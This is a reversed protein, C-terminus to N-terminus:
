TLITLAICNAASFIRAVSSTGTLAPSPPSYHRSLNMGVTKPFRILAFLIGTEDTTLAVIHIVHLQRSHEISIDHTAGIPVREDLIYIDTLRHLNRPDHCHNSTFVQIGCPERPHWRERSIRFSHQRQITHMVLHLFYGKNNSGATIGCGIASSSDPYIILRQRHYDIGFLCERGIRWQQTGILLILLWCVLNIVPLSAFALGGISGKSFGCGVAHDDPLLHINWANMGRWDLGTAANGVEMFRGPFECDPHSRLRRMRM